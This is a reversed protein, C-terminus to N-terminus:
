LQPWSAKRDALGLEILHRAADVDGRRAAERLTAFAAAIDDRTPKVNRAGRPRGPRIETM